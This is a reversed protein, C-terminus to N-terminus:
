PHCAHLPVPMIIVDYFPRLQLNLLSCYSILILNFKMKLKIEVAVKIGNFIKSIERLSM